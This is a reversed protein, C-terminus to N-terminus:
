GPSCRRSLICASASRGPPPDRRRRENQAPPARVFLIGDSLLPQGSRIARWIGRSTAPMTRRVLQAFPALRVATTQRDPVAIVLRIPKEERAILADRKLQASRLQAQFDVLAREIEIHIVETPGVLLLDAARPDGPSIPVELSAKWSPHAAGVIVEALGLQGSDRLRVTAVPYLRWGLEHGCAAALRCRITLSVDGIAREVLSVQQQSTGALKAMQMQTLGASMRAIRLERGFATALYRARRLGKSASTSRFSDM